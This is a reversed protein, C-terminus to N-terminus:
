CPRRSAACGSRAPRPTTCCSPSRARTTPGCSRSPRGSGSRASPGRRRRRRPLDAAPPGAHAVGLRRLRAGGAGDMRRRLGPAGVGPHLPLRHRRGPVRRRRRPAPDPGARGRASRAGRGHPRGPAARPRGPPPPAAHDRRRRRRPRRRAGRPRGGVARRRRHPRPGRGRGRGRGRPRPARLAPPPAALRRARGPVPHRHRHGAGRRGALGALEELALAGRRPRWRAPCTPPSPTGRAAPPTARHRHPVALRTTDLWALALAAWREAVSGASWTDFADTPLWVAEGDEDVARPSCAPSRRSRSSCARGRARRGAPRTRDGQPRPRVARRRAAGRAAGPGLPRAGAGRPTRGRLGRGGRQADVLAVDRDTTAVEPVEDRPTRTTRGGRLALGSRAPCSSCHRRRPPALLRHAILEEVPTTADAPSVTRRASGTTGEGGHDDVHTSCPAPPRPRAGRPPRRRREPDAPEAVDPAPREGRRDRRRAARGGVGSLPRLGGPSEWVLALDVLRDVAAGAAAPEAHVM